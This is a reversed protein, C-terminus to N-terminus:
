GTILSIIADVVAKPNKHDTSVTHDAVEQYLPDRVSILEIIKARPDEVQLLPRKRDRRTRKVLQEITATLYIVNGHEKLLKRNEEQTVIGGGTALVQGESEMLDALVNAERERFGAEGEIDFIWPIDAGSREEIEQDTDKFVRGTAQALLRGITSKGVGM